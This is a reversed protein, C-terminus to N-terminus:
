KIATYDRISKKGAMSGVAKITCSSFDVWCVNLSECFQKAVRTNVKLIQFVAYCM